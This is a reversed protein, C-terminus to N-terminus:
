EVTGDTPRQFDDRDINLYGGCEGVKLLFSGVPKRIHEEFNMYNHQMGEFLRLESKPNMFVKSIAVSQQYPIIDDQKGHIILTPVDISKMATEIDWSQKVLYYGLTGVLSKCAERISSFPSVLILCLVGFERALSSAPGTGISRGMVIIKKLPVKLRDIVYHMAEKCDREILAASAKRSKYVGYGPFEVALINITLKSSLYLLFNYIHGIDECNGHLYFILQTAKDNTFLFTPINRDILPIYLLQAHKQTLFPSPKPVPFLFRNGEIIGKHTNTVRRISEYNVINSNAPCGCGM